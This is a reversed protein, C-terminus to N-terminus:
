NENNLLWTYITEIPDKGDKNILYGKAKNEPILREMSEIKEPYLEYQNIGQGPDENLNFLLGPSDFDQYGRLQLFSDPM